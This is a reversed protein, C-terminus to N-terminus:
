KISNYTALIMYTYSEHIDDHQKKTCVQDYVYNSYKILVM